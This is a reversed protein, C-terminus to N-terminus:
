FAEAQVWAHAESEAGASLVRDEYGPVEVRVSWLGNRNVDSWAGPHKEQVRDKAHTLYVHRPQFLDTLAALQNTRVPGREWELRGPEPWAAQYATKGNAEGTVLDGLYFGREDIVESVHAAEGKGPILKWNRVSVTNSKTM